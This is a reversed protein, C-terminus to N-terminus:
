SWKAAIIACTPLGQLFNRPFFKVSPGAPCRAFGCEAGGPKSALDIVLTDPRLEALRDENLVRAPVTNILLDYSCLWGDLTSIQEACCGYAEAWVLDSWKRAAVTVRAGLAHLRHAVLKGLRGYGLVMARCGHLTIPLEEM